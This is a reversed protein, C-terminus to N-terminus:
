FPFNEFAGFAGKISCNTTCMNGPEDWDKPAVCPCEKEIWDKSEKTLCQKAFSMIRGTPTFDDLNHTKYNGWVTCCDFTDQNCCGCCDCEVLANNKGSCGGCDAFIQANPFKTKNGNCFGNLSGQLGANNYLFFGTMSPIAAAFDPIHGTLCNDNLGLNELKNMKVYSPPITGSLQGGSFGIEKISGSLYSLEHPLPGVFNNYWM